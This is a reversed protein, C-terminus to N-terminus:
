GTRNMIGRRLTKVYGKAHKEGASVEDSRSVVGECEIRRDSNSNALVVIAEGTELRETVRAWAMAKKVRGRM